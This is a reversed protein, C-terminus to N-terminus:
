SGASKRRFDDASTMLQGITTGLGECLETLTDLTPNGQGRALENFHEYNLACRDAAAQRSMGKQELELLIAQSLAAM